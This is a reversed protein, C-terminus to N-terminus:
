KLVSNLEVITGVNLSIFLENNIYGADLVKAIDNVSVDIVVDIYVNKSMIVDVNGSVDISGKVIWVVFTLIIVDVDILNSGEVVNDFSVIIDVTGVIFGTNIEVGNMSVNNVKLKGVSGNVNIGVVYGNFNNMSGGVEDSGSTVSVTNFKSVDSLTYDGYYVESSNGNNGNM